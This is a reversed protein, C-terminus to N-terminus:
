GAQPPTIGLNDRWYDSVFIQAPDLQERLELFREMMPLNKRYYARWEPSAHPLVKGWHPRFGFPELVRWFMPYFSDSPSGANLKFWFVDVRFVDAGYSPSMWFPSAKAAYLECSFAGTHQYAEEASGSEYFDRLARMVETAREVPIWLETFETPWLQDDMQNDMPLGCMWTDQFSQTGLPVFPDLIDKIAYPMVWELIKGLRAAGESTLVGDLLLRIAATILDALWSPLAEADNAAPPSAVEIRTSAEAHLALAHDQVEAGRSAAEPRALAATLRPLLWALVDDVSLKRRALQSPTPACANVDPQGDLTGDLHQYWDHLKAPVVALDELNGILTYFLSGALAAIQPARGLEEYPVPKFGPAPELRSAQWVQMRRFGHQPWWMLRTYPTERLYTELSPQGPRDGFLDMPTEDEGSTIQQGAINYSPGVRLWVKSIVGLLGMSVVAAFFLDRRRPDPDDRSLDHIVGTGDIIRLRAINDQVSYQISGGSSGTSLFGSVTQHSIGGLDDLAYRRGDVGIQLMYDLSNQWTSTGTPDYPNRGLNCGAEVEVLARSPDDRDPTIVVNRYRDLMVAISGEPPRGEGQYGTMYIAAPVSHQSGRVRLPLRKEYAYACLARLEEESAPHYYGDTGREIISTGTIM